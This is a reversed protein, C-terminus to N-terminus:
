IELEKNKTTNKLSMMSTGGKEGNSDNSPSRNRKNGSINKDSKIVEIKHLQNYVQTAIKQQYKTHKLLKTLMDTKANIINDVKRIVKGCVSIRERNSDCCIYKANVIDNDKTTLSIDYDGDESLHTNGSIDFTRNTGTQFTCGSPSQITGNFLLKFTDEYGEYGELEEVKINGNLLTRRKLQVDYNIFRDGLRLTIYERGENNKRVTLNQVLITQPITVSDIESSTDNDRNKFFEVIKEAENNM